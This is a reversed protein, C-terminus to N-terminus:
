AGGGCSTEVHALGPALTACAILDGDGFREVFARAGM